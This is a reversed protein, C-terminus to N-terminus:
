LRAISLGGDANLISGSAFSFSGSALAAVMGGIDGPRGWRGAPVLGDAIRQGYAQHVANTMETDIIGPRLEFVAIGRPALLVALGQSFASLAAKSMCYDLREPSTMAASVSTITVVTGGEDLHPLVAQTLFVTGRLNVAMVRDYAAPTLGDFPGRVLSGIGANNVLLRFKGFRAAMEQLMPKHGAINALDSRWYGTGEPLDQPNVLAEGLDTVALDFGAGALALAVARGIGKNGGTILAAPM